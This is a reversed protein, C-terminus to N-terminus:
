SASERRLTAAIPLRAAVWMPYVAAAAGTSALLVVHLVVASPELVFFHLRDPIGPMARLIRDLEVALVFGVPLALLGGVGVLLASEWLLSAAIRRRRVGLARLAAVEGLRQNVSVTLLTAVLLFAFGLTITSLVLSIQRFYSFSNRNFQEVLQENSYARLDPRLRDIAAAAGDPGFEPRSEVLIVSAHDEALGTEGHVADFAGPTTAALYENAAEFQFEAIGAIRFALLPFASAEGPSVPRIPLTTGPELGLGAAMARNVVLAPPGGSGGRAGSLNEGRLLRWTHREGGATISFLTITVAPRNPLEVLARDMRVLAAQQVEPLAGIAAAAARAQVIPMRLGPLGESAVVRVDYGISDLLDQFSRLLGNSLLLMDFLLAGVVAVGAIALVARAPNAGVTRWALARPTM